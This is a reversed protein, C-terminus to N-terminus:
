PPGSEREATTNMKASDAQIAEITACGTDRCCTYRFTDDCLRPVIDNATVGSIPVTVYKCQDM